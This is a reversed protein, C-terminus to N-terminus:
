PADGDNRSAKHESANTQGDQVSPGAQAQTDDVSADGEGASADPKPAEPEPAIQCNAHQTGDITLEIHQAGIELRNGHEDGFISQGREAKLSLQRRGLHIIAQRADHSATFRFQDACAYAVIEDDSPATNKQLMLLAPQPNKAFPQVSQPVPTQWIVEGDPDVIEANLGYQGEETLLARGITLDFSVPQKDLEHLTQEAVIRREGDEGIHQVLSIRASANDPLVGDNATALQGELDINDQQGSSCAAALAFLTLAVCRQVIRHSPDFRKNM